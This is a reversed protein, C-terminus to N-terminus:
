REQGMRPPPTAATPQPLLLGAGRARMQDGRAAERGLAQRAADVAIQLAAKHAGLYHCGAGDWGGSHITGAGALPTVDLELNPPCEHVARATLKAVLRSIAIRPAQALVPM